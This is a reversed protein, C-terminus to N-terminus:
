ASEAAKGERGAKFARLTERLDQLSGIVDFEIEYENHVYGEARMHSILAILPDWFGGINAILIPKAHQRLQRLTIVEMLEELTGVGGPMAIFLDAIEFMRMKRDHMDVTVIHIKNTQKVIHAKNLFEPIVGIVEGGNEECARAVRGMLGLDGGGYVLRMGEEAILRGADQAFQKHLPAVGEASGCFVCITTM